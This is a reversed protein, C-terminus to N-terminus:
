NKRFSRESKMRDAHRELALEILRDLLEPYTLGSAEWLKPYMSIATFGPMTNLESLYLEGSKRDLLFDARALGAGDIARYAEVALRQVRDATEEPLPAPIVLQSTGDVYKSEYSYFERSPIVEGPVSARPRDNGLVSVEIERADIGREILVRRDYRAAEALGEVLDSRNACRSIGVSSGLNAPKTFLPYPAVAEARRLVGDLDHAIEGRGCLIYEVVPVGHAHMLHKFLAKDMAVSSALVGAGVYPVEALELFGQLTGDEGFTGHLVPFIVDVQRFLRLHLEDEKEDEAVRWVRSPGPEALMAAHTGKGNRQELTRMVDPGVLWKGEPTIGIEVVEYRSRDLAALVSRASMLSIEHEGSRGGYMVGVRLAGM